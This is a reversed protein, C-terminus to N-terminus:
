DRERLIWWYIIILDAFYIFAVFLAIVWMWVEIKGALALGLLLVAAGILATGVLGTQLASLFSLSWPEFKKPFTVEEAALAEQLGVAPFNEVVTAKLQNLASSNTFWIQRMRILQVFILTAYASLLLFLGSMGLAITQSALQGSQAGFMAVFFAGLALFYLPGVRTREASSASIMRLLHEYEAVVVDAPNLDDTM